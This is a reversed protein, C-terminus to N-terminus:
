YSIELVKTGLFDSIENINDMPINDPMYYDNEDRSLNIAELYNLGLVKGEEKLKIVEEIAFKGEDEIWNNKLDLTQLTKNIKLAEAIAIAGENGIKNYGLHLTQLPKNTKLAEALFEVGKPGFRNNMLDLNQLTKNTKLAEALFEVGEYGIDNGTLVLTKVGTPNELFETLKTGPHNNIYDDLQRNLGFSSKRSKKRSKALILRQRKRTRSDMLDYFSQRKLKQNMIKKKLVM